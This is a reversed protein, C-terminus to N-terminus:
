KFLELPDLWNALDAKNAVYGAINPESGRYLGFHLHKREGDTESTGGEGLVGIQQGAQVVTGPAVLSEPSLHGYIGYVEQQDLVHNVVVVGGYGTAIRSVVVEGDTIAVVPVEEAVDDFEVDVATHYGSFREPQVPSTTPDIFIGFPKLTIRKLFEETPPVLENIQEDNEFRLSALFHDFVERDLQPNRAFVYFTTQDDDSLRIDTVEHELNRWAPQNPFDAVGQKKLIRYRVAPRSAIELETRELIDVTQLTLFQSAKFFKIYAQSQDIALGELNPNYINIAADKSNYIVEWDQNIEGTFKFEDDVKRFHVLKLEQRQDTDDIIPGVELLQNQGDTQSQYKNDPLILLAFILSLSIFFVLAILKKYNM